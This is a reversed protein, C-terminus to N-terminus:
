SPLATRHGRAAHFREAHHGDGCEDAQDQREHHQTASSPATGLSNFAARKRANLTESSRFRRTLCGQWNTLLVMVFRGGAKAVNKCKM